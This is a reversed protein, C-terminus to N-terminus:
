ALRDRFTYLLRERIEDPLTETLDGLAVITQRFQDLYEGCGECAALHDIVRRETEADLADDLFATALEVLERCTMATVIYGNRGM